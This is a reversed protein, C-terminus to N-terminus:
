LVNSSAAVNVFERALSSLPKRCLILERSIHAKWAGLLLRSFFKKSNSPGLNLVDLIMYISVFYRKQVKMGHAHSDGM